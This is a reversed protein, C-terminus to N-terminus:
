QVELDLGGAFGAVVNYVAAAIAGGILGLVGYFIPAIVIAGVGFIPAIWPPVDNNGANAMFGAGVMSVTALICGGILGIVAYLAGAIKAASMVGVRRIVMEEAERCHRHAGVGEQDASTGPWSLLVIVVAPEPTRV